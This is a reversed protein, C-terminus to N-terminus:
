RLREVPLFLELTQLNPMKKITFNISVEYRNEDPRADVAVIVNEVRSEYIRILDQLDIRVSQSTVNDIPEFLVDQLPSSIERNFPKDYPALRVLNRLSSKVAAEDTVTSIDATHPHKRFSFDLDRYTPEAM